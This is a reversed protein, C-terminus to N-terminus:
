GGDRGVSGSERGESSDKLPIPKLPAAFWNSILVSNKPGNTQVMAGTKSVGRRRGRKRGSRRNGKGEATIFSWDIALPNSDDRSGTGQCLPRSQHGLFKSTPPPHWIELISQHSNINTQSWTTHPIYQVHVSLTLKCVRNHKNGHNYTMISSHMCTHRHTEIPCPWAGLRRSMSETHCLNALDWCHQSRVSVRSGTLHTSTSVSSDAGVPISRLGLWGM